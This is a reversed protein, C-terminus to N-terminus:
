TNKLFLPNRKYEKVVSPDDWNFYHDGAEQAALCNRAFTAKGIQRPGTLYTLKGANTAHDLIYQNILREM